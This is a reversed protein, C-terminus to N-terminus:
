YRLFLDYSFCIPQAQDPIASFSWLVGFHDALYESSSIHDLKEHINTETFLERVPTKSSLNSQQQQEIRLHYFLTDLKM